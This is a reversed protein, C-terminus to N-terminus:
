VSAKAMLCDGTWCSLMMLAEADALTSVHDVVVDRRELAAKLVSAMEPEDELLLIRM